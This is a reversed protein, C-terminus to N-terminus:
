KIEAQQEPTMAYTRDTAKSDPARLLGIWVVFKDVDQKECKANVEEGDRIGYRNTKQNRWTNIKTAAAQASNRNKYELVPYMLDYYGRERATNIFERIKQVTGPIVAPAAAAFEDPRRPTMQEWDLVRVQNPARREKPEPSSTRTSMPLGNPGVAEGEEDRAGLADPVDAPAAEEQPDLKALYEPDAVVEQSSDAWDGQTPTDLDDLGILSPVAYPPPPPVSPPTTM